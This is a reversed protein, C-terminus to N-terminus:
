KGIVQKAMKKRALIVLQYRTLRTKQKTEKAGKDLKLMRYLFPYRNIKISQVM